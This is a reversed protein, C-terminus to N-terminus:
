LCVIGVICVLGVLLALLLKECPGAIHAQKQLGFIAAYILLGYNTIVWQQKKLFNHQDHMAKYLIEGQPSLAPMM